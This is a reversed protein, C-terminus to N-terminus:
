AAALGAPTEHATRTGTLGGCVGLLRVLCDGATTFNGWDGVLGGCGTSVALGANQMTVATALAAFDRFSLGGTVSKPPVHMPGAPLAPGTLREFSGM